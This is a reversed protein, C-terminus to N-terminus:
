FNHFDEFTLNKSFGNLLFIDTPRYLFYQACFLGLIQMQQLTLLSLFWKYWLPLIALAPGPYSTWGSCGGTWIFELLGQIYVMPALVMCYDIWLWPTPFMSIFFDVFSNNSCHRDSVLMWPNRYLTSLCNWIQSFIKHVTRVSPNRDNPIYRTWTHM